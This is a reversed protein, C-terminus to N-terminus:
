VFQFTSIDITYNTKEVIYVNIYNYKFIDSILTTSISAFVYVGIYMNLLMSDKEKCLCQSIFKSFPCIHDM